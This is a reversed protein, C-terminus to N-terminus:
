SNLLFLSLSLSLYFSLSLSVLLILILFTYAFTYIYLIRTQFYPIAYGYQVVCSMDLYTRVIECEEQCIGITLRVELLDDYQNPTDISPPSTNDYYLVNLIDQLIEFCLEVDGERRDIHEKLIATVSPFVQCRSERCSFLQGKVLNHIFRLKHDSSKTRDHPISKLFESALEGLEGMSFLKHLDTFVFAFNQLLINQTALLDGEAPMRMLNNFAVFLQKLESRFDDSRKSRTHLVRSQVILKFIYELAKLASRFQQNKGDSGAGEVYMRLCQVLSRHVMAGSFHREIYADLVPRFNHFKKDALVGILYALADFVDM